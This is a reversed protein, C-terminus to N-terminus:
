SGHRVRQFPGARHEAARLAKGGVAARAEADHDLRRGPDQHDVVVGGHRLDHRTVELAVTVGDLRNGVSPVGEVPRQRRWRVEHDEIEHQRADVPQLHATRRASAGTGM